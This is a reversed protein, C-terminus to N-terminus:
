LDKNEWNLAEKPSDYITVTEGKYLSKGSRLPIDKELVDWEVMGNGVATIRVPLSRLGGANMVMFKGLHESGIKTDTRM